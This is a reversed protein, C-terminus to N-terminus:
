RHEIGVKEEDARRRAPLLYVAKDNM